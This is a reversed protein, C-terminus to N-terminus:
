RPDELVAKAREEWARTVHEGVNGAMYLGIVYVTIEAFVEPPLVRFMMAGFVTSYVLLTLSYKRNGESVLLTLYHKM